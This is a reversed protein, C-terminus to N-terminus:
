AIKEIKGIFYLDEDALPHNFDIILSNLKVEVVV